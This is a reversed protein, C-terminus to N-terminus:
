IAPKHVRGGLLLQGVLDKFYLTEEFWHKITNDLIDSSTLASMHKLMFLRPFPRGLRKRKRKAIRPIHVGLSPETAERLTQPLLGVFSESFREDANLHM